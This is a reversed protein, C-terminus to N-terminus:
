AEKVMILPTGEKLTGQPDISNLKAVTDMTTNYHKAISWLDDGRQVLYVAMSPLSDLEEPERQKASVDTLLAIDKEEVVCADLMLNVRIEVERGGQMAGSVSELFPDIEVLHDPRIGRAEIKQSFPVIESFSSIPCHDDAALYFVKVYLVGEVQIQDELITYDDLKPRASAYFIQLIDPASEPVSLVETIGAKMQNCFIFRQVPCIKKSIDLDWAPAYLDSIVDQQTEEYVKLGCQCVIEADLVRDEGDQDQGIQLFCKVISLKLQAMMEPKVGTCEIIGNFPLMSELFEVQGGGEMGTYLVCVGIDGKLTVKDDAIRQEKNKITADWWLIEGINPSSSAIKIEDKVIFKEDKDAMLRRMPMGHTQIQIGDIGQVDMVMPTDQCWTLVAEMELLASLNLKRSNLLTTRVNEITNKLEYRIRGDAEPPLGDVNLFDDVTVSTKMSHVECSDGDGLYLVTFELKGGFRIRQGELTSEEPAFRVGTQLIRGVDPKSDPVIVDEKIPIQMIQAPRRSLASYTEKRLDVAM